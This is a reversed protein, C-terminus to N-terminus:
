QTFRSISLSQLGTDQIFPEQIEKSVMSFSFNTISQLSSWIDGYLSPGLFIREFSDDENLIYGRPPESIAQNQVVITNVFPPDNNSATRFVIGSLNKRLEWKQRPVLDLGTEKSWLGWLQVKLDSDPSARYCDYLEVSGDLSGNFLVVNSDIPVDMKEFLSSNSNYIFWFKNEGVFM